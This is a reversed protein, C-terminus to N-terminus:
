ILISRDLTAQLKGITHLDHGGSFDCFNYLPVTREVHEVWM